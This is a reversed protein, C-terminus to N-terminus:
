LSEHLLRNEKKQFNRVFQHEIFHHMFLLFDNEQDVPVFFEFLDNKTDLARDFALGDENRLAGTIFWIMRRELTATFYSCYM